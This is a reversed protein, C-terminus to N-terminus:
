YKDHREGSDQLNRNTVTRNMKYFTEEELNYMSIKFISNM